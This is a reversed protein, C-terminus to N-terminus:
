SWRCLEGVHHSRHPIVVFSAFSNMPNIAAASAWHYSKDTDPGCCSGPWRTRRTVAVRGGGDTEKKKEKRKSAISLNRLEWVGSRGIESVKDKVPKM